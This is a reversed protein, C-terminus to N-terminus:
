TAARARAAISSSEPQRCRHAGIIARLFHAAEFQAGRVQGSEYRTPITPFRVELLVQEVAQCASALKSPDENDAGRLEIHLPGADDALVVDAFGPVLSLDLADQVVLLRAAFIALGVRPQKNEIVAQARNVELAGDAKAEGARAPVEIDRHPDREASPCLEKM